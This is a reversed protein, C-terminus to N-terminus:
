LVRVVVETRPRAADKDRRCGGGWHIQSDNKLLGSRQLYDGLAIKYRDEDGTDIDRYWVATVEVPRTIPLQLERAALRVVPWQQMAAKFWRRYPASPIVAQKGDRLAIKGTNKTRPAGLITFRITPITDM